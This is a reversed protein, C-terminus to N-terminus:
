NLWGFKFSTARRPKADFYANVVIRVKGNTAQSYPDVLIDVGSWSAIVLDNFNGFIVGKGSGVTPIAATAHCPYGNVENGEMVMVAANTAKPTTKLVGKTTPHVIYALKGGLANGAELASEFAVAKAFTTTGTSTYAAGYLLGAPQATNGSANGLITAELKEIIANYLDQMLMQEAQVSDQNLFSKSVDIYGTLRKASMTIESFAGAGDAAAAVETKWAVNSGAYVPISVDGKLGGVYLAGAKVLVSNNRLAGMLSWKDEVITEAGATAGGATIDARFEMPIQIQGRYDLNSKKFEAIGAENMTITEDSMQRQEVIDRISKLLNFRNEM